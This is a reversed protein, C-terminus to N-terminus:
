SGLHSPLPPKSDLPTRIGPRSRVAQLPRRSYKRLQRTFEYAIGFTMDATKLMASESVETLMASFRSFAYPRRLFVRLGKVESPTITNSHLCITQVGLPMWRPRWTQQPVFVLGCSTYPFLSVGDSVATFGLDSLARLTTQDFSHNPAMWYSTSIGHSHLIKQGESIKFVQDHYSEGAFESLEYTGCHSKLLAAGPRPILTHQYGHQAIDIADSNHLSRMEDWFRPNACQRNLNPDRNDPVIGLLPKISNKMFLNMLSEFRGWDMTPTIDDMRFIYHASM